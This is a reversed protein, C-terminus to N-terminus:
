LRARIGVSYVREEYRVDRAFVFNDETTRYNRFPKALINSVDAALTLNENLTYSISGDLRSVGKTFEREIVQSPTAEYIQVYKSRRNYALRASIPGKEYFAVLNYTWKSVDPFKIAPLDGDGPADLKHDIYTANLETGFGHAWNPLSAFDFFTRFQAEVGQLQGSSVNVPGTIRAPGVDPIDRVEAVDLIYDSVDRRFLAVAAFGTSAFYYELSLDYNRSTIPRLNPNGGRGTQVQGPGPPPDLRLGPNFQGFDPRRRTETYAARVQLRDMPRVRISVNPLVDTYENSFEVPFVLDNAPGELIEERFGNLKFNTNIVRVGIAGDIPVSGADFGYRAQVYGTYGKESATYDDSPGTRDQTVEELGSQPRGPLFGGIQRLQAISKRISDFTPLVLSNVGNNGDRFRWDVDKFEVPFESWLGGTGNRTFREANSFSANRDNMRVGIDIGRLMPAVEKFTLDVRGQWDDGKAILYRDFIGFSRYNNLDTTDSGTFDFQAGGDGPGDFEVDITPSNALQYDLSYVSLAFRSDTRAIDANFRVRETDWTAGAGIQYTDTKEKTAAQFGNPTCCNPANATLRSPYAYLDGEGAIEVDTYTGYAFLPAFMQRDSVERRFGQYLGDVYFQLDSNVKYQVSGNASPRWRKGANMFLGVGVPVRVTVGPVNFAPAGGLCDINFNDCYVTPDAASPNIGFFDGSDFRIHDEYTLETYSVNLLAGLEGGDGVEWRNSALLNGNVAVDKALDAYTANISGALELGKFDFPRRSRVNILGALNGEIQEATQSKYAELAAVGGAPFDQPAVNRVEATFIERGNYTTAPDRLGRLFVDGAEGQAREVSIGPIRALAESVTRDPLKGIDEAVVVDVIQDSNRKINQASQLSRRIGTVVITESDAVQAGPTTQVADDSPLTASDPNGPTTQAEVAPDPPTTPQTQAVAPTAVLAMAIATGTWLASTFKGM